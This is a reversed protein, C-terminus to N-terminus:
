TGKGLIVLIKESIKNLKTYIFVIIAHYTYRLYAEGPRELGESSLSSQSMPLPTATRARDDGNEQLFM